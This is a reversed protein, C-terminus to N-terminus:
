TRILLIRGAISHELEMTEVSAREHLHAMRDVSFIQLSYREKHGVFSCALFLM